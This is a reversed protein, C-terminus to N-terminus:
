HLPKLVRNLGEEADPVLVLHIHNTMLCYALIAVQHEHSYEQLWNLYVHRDDDIFFVDERRNRHPTINHPIRLFVYRALRPM